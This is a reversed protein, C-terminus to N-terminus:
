GPLKEGTALLARQWDMLGDWQRTQALSALTARSAIFTPDIGLELARQDRQEKLACFRRNEEDTFRHGSVHIRLPQEKPPV